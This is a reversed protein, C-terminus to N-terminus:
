SEPDLISVGMCQCNNAAKDETTMAKRADEPLSWCVDGAVDSTVGTLGMLGKFAWHTSTPASVFQPVPILAGNLIMQPLILLIVFLPAANANPSLSSAFLGLMMGATTALVLTIYVMILEAAGGPVDFALYRVILYAGAQYFALIVAVWVKSLVYPLIKLNVLRERKYIEREKVFERMQSLAGVLVGYVTLIFITTIVDAM